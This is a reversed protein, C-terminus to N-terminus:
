AFSEKATRSIRPGAPFNLYTSFVVNRFSSRNEEEPSPLSDGVRNLGKSQALRLRRNTLFGPLYILNVFGIIRFTEIKRSNKINFKFM